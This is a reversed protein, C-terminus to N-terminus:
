FSNSFRPGLHTRYRDATYFLRQRALRNAFDGAKKIDKTQYLKISFGAAFVDGAGVSDIIKSQPVPRTPLRIMADGKLAVAGKEAQTIIVLTNNNRRAWRRAELFMKPHDEDSVVVVNLFSLITDAEKFERLIVNDHPDFSRYFGQPLLVTSCDKKAFLVIRRFYNEPFNPLLPAFFIIDAQRVLRIMNRNIPVPNGEERNYAKQTRTGRKTINEYVLTKKRNPRKPYLSVNKAYPLFDPGYPAIITVKSHPIQRFIKSMFMAPSGPGTYSMHESSNKDICVHGIILINM